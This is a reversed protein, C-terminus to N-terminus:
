KGEFFFGMSANSTIFTCTSKYFILCGLDITGHSISPDRACARDDYSIACAGEIVLLMRNAEFPGSVWKARKWTFAVINSSSDDDFSKLGQPAPKTLVSM